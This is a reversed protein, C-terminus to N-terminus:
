RVESKKYGHNSAGKTCSRLLEAIDNCVKVEHRIVLSSPNFAVASYTKAMQKGEKPHNGVIGSAPQMDSDLNGTM